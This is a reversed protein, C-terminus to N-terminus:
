TRGYYCAVEVNGQSLRAAKEVTELLNIPPVVHGEVVFLRSMSLCDQVVAPSVFTRNGHHWRIVRDLGPVHTSNCSLLFIISVLEDLLLLECARM